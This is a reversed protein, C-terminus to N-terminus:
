HNKECGCLGVGTSNQARSGIAFLQFVRHLQSEPIGPGNDQVAFLHFTPEEESSITIKGEPKDMFKISNSLLNQFVQQLRTKECILIPLRNIIQVQINAPPALMQAVDNVLLNMDVELKDECIRGARSYQLIGEILQQMRQARGVLLNLLEAGEEDMTEGYEELIVDTISVIAALPAKLDHSVVHAFDTLERNLSELEQTREHVRQELEVNLKLLSNNAEQYSRHTMEYPSLSEALFTAAAELIQRRESESEADPLIMSLAEHHSAALDLVGVGEGAAKRGMEYARKLAYEGYGNIYDRLTSIYQESFRLLMARSKM